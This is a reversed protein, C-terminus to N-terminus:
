PRADLRDGGSTARRRPPTATRLERVPGRRTWGRARSWTSRRGSRRSARSRASGASWPRKEGATQRPPSVRARAGSGAPRAPGPRRARRGRHPRVRPAPRPRRASGSRRGSERLAGAGGRHFPCAEARLAQDQRDVDRRHRPGTAGLEDDHVLPALPTRAHTRPHELPLRASEPHEVFRGAAIQPHDADPVSSQSRSCSAPSTSGKSGSIRRRTQSPSRNRSPTRRRRGRPTLM